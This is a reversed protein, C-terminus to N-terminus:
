VFFTIHICWRRVTDATATSLPCPRMHGGPALLFPAGFPPAANKAVRLIGFNHSSQQPLSVCPHVFWWDILWDILWNVCFKYPVAIRCTWSRWCFWNFARDFLVNKLRKRFTSTDTIDHLDSPLTNWGCFLACKLDTNVTHIWLLAIIQEYRFFKHYWRGQYQTLNCSM